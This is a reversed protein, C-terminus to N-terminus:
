GRWEDWFFINQQNFSDMIQERLSLRDLFEPLLPLLRFDPPQRMAVDAPYEGPRQGAQRPAHQTPQCRPECYASFAVCSQSAITFLHAAGLDAEGGIGIEGCAFAPRMM